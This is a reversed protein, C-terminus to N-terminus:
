SSSDLILLLRLDKTAESRLIVTCSSYLRHTPLSADTDDVVRFNHKLLCLVYNGQNSVAAANGYSNSSPM